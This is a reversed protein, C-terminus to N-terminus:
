KSTIAPNSEQRNPTLGATHLVRARRRSLRQDRLGDVGEGLNGSHTYVRHQPTAAAAAAQKITSLRHRDTQKGSETPADLGAPREVCITLGGHPRPEITNEDERHYQDQKDEQRNPQQLANRGCTPREDPAGM